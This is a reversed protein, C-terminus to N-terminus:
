KQFVFVTKTIDKGNLPHSQVCPLKMESHMYDDLRLERLVQDM